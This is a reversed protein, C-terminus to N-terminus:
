KKGNKLMEEFITTNYKSKNRYILLRNKISGYQAEYNMRQMTIYDRMKGSLSLPPRFPKRRAICSDPSDYITIYQIIVRAKFLPLCWRCLIYDDSQERLKDWARNLNQVNCHVNCGGLQRSLAQFVPIEPYKNNLQNCYQSPFYVGVDSIYIDTGKPYPYQYYNIEGSIFNEYNNGGCELLSLDLPAYLGGYDVNSVYPLKRRQSVNAFLMDKGRGRLGVVCVNGREFHKKILRKMRM